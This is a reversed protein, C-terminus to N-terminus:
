SQQIGKVEPKSLLELAKQGRRMHYEVLLQVAARLNTFNWSVCLILACCLLRAPVAVDDSWVIHQLCVRKSSCIPDPVGDVCPPGVLEWAVIADCTYREEM